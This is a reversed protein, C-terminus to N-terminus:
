DRLARAAKREQEQERERGRGERREDGRRQEHDDEDRGDADDAAAPGTPRVIWLGSLIDSAFIVGDERVAVGWVLPPQVFAEPPPEGPPPEGPPPEFITGPPAFQGVM